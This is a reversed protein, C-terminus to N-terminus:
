RPSELVRRVILERVGRCGTFRGGENEIDSAGDSPVAGHTEGARAPTLTEPARAPGGVVLLLKLPPRKLARRTPSPERSAAFLPPEHPEGAGEARPKVDETHQAVPEAVWGLDSRPGDSEGRRPLASEAVAPVYAASPGGRVTCRLLVARGEAPDAQRGGSGLAPRPPGEVAPVGPVQSGPGAGDEATASGKAARKSAAPEAPAPFSTGFM